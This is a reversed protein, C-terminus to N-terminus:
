TKEPNPWGATTKQTFRADQSYLVGTPRRSEAKRPDVRELDPPEVQDTVSIRRCGALDYPVACVSDFDHFPRQLHGVKALAPHSVGPEISAIRGPPSANAQRREEVSRSEGSRSLHEEVGLDVHGAERVTPDLRARCVHLHALARQRYLWFARLSQEGVM